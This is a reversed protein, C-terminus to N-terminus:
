PGLFFAFDSGGGLGTQVWLYPDTSTPQTAQIFLNQPGAPGQPGMPGTPGAPGTGGGGGGGGQQLTTVERDLHDLDRQVDPFSHVTPSPLTM